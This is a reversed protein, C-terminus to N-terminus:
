NAGAVDARPNPPTGPREDALIAQGKTFWALGFAFVALSELWFIPTYLTLETKLEPVQMVAMVVAILAICVLITHGCIRYIGNRYRKRRTPNRAPSTKVFLVLCFYALTLLLLGAFMYHVIGIDMPFLAVGVAFICAFRGAIVDRKDNNYGRYSLLFVGIACLSGVLVDRMPSDYYSSISDQIFFPGLRRAASCTTSWCGWNKQWLTQGAVLVFPLALGVIGIARRLGLYSLVVPDQTGTQPSM